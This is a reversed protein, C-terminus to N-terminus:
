LQFHLQIDGLVRMLCLARVKRLMEEKLEDLVRFKEMIMAPTEWEDVYGVYYVPDLQARRKRSSKRGTEKSM